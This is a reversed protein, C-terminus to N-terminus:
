DIGGDRQELQQILHVVVGRQVEVVRNQLVGQKAILVSPNRQKRADGRRFPEEDHRRQVDVPDPQAVHEVGNFVNAIGGGHPLGEAGLLSGEDDIMVEGWRRFALVRPSPGRKHPGLQERILGEVHQLGQTIGRHTAITLPPIRTRARAIRACTRPNRIIDYGGRFALHGEMILYGHRVMSVELVQFVGHMSVPVHKQLHEPFKRALDPYGCIIDVEDPVYM